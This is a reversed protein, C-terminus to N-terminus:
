QLNSFNDRITLLISQGGLRIGASSNRMGFRLGALLVFPNMKWIDRIFREQTRCLEPACFHQLQSCMAGLPAETSLDRGPLAQASGAAMHGTRSGPCHPAAGPVTM